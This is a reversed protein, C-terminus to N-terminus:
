KARVLGKLFASNVVYFVDGKLRDREAEFRRYDYEVDYIFLPVSAENMFGLFGYWLLLEITETVALGLGDIAVIAAIESETLLEPSGIFAFLIKEPTGAVDRMEYAFDSVLYRAMLRLGEDVDEPMVFAHGRNIACSITKECLDILFRPRRLSNEILLTLTDGNPLNPNIANWADGQNDTDVSSAVRERILNRLQTQDSWDVRIPNYKGRDSTEEVLREYIDSRLFVLHRVTIKRRNLDQRISSLGEILHKVMSIDHSEVRRPPWGKDLDDILIVIEDAIDAFGIIENRLEPIFKEFMKNTIRSRVDESSQADDMARIVGDVATGLRSTFDGAVMADTMAFKTELNRVREQLKFDNRSKALAAERLKLLVEVYMIYQWFAAITHDFVGATAVVSLVAERMESLNHSAPRLEVICTRRDRALQAVIQLCIASKGSGKRGIVVAGEARLARLFAATKIFYENLRQTENEAMPSGLDIANLPNLTLRRDRASARQNWVLVKAAFGSVHRNTEHGYTSNTIFDRYDVPAPRNDYQIALVEVEFGHCLGLIFSARLNNREADVLEESLVSVIVGASSSVESIASAATLRPIETPDFTRFQVQSNEVAHFIQNRFDTKMQTDLIFLPQSHNKRRTYASTWPTEPPDRLAEFLDDANTYTAWGITDFLGLQNVCQVAREVAVNVTPIVPKGIAIGYGIEYFVNMNPYTIDAVLVAAATVNARVRDDLKFGVTRMARWSKLVLPAERCRQVVGEVADAVLTHGDPYAFFGLKTM